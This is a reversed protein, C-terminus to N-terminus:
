LALSRIDEQSGRFTVAVTEHSQSMVAIGDSVDVRVPVNYQVEFGIVGQIIWWSMGALVLSLLKLGINHVFLQKVRDLM